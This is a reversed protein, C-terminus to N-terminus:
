CSYLQWCYSVFSTRYPYLSIIRGLCLFLEVSKACTQFSTALIYPLFTIVLDKERLFIHNRLPFPYFLGQTRRNLIFNSEVLWVNSYAMLAPSRSCSLAMMEKSRPIDGVWGGLFEQGLGVLRERAPNRRSASCHSDLGLPIQCSLTICVGLAETNGLAGVSCSHGCSRLALTGLGHQLCVTPQSNAGAKTLQATCGCQEELESKELSLGWTPLLLNPSFCCGPWSVKWLKSISDVKNAATPRECWWM